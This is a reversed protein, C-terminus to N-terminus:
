GTTSGSSRRGTRRRTAAHRATCRRSRPRCSSRGSGAAGCCALVLAQGEAILSRDWLSRDQDKLLVVDAEDGRAPVRADSLLMLALLGVVEPEDPM